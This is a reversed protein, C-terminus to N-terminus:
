LCGLVRNKGVYVCVCVCVSSFGLFLLVPFVTALVAYTAGRSCEWVLTRPVVFASPLSTTIVRFGSTRTSARWCLDCGILARLSLVSAAGVASPLRVFVLHPELEKDSLSGVSCLSQNSSENHGSGKAVGVGTFRAELLEQRRPDLSHLEEMM